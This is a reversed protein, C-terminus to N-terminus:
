GLVYAQQEVSWVVRVSQNGPTGDSAIPTIYYSYYDGGYVIVLFGPSPENEQGMLLLRQNDAVLAIPNLYLLTRGGPSLEQTVFMESAVLVAKISPDSFGVPTNIKVRGTRYSIQETIGDSNIDGSLALRIEQDAPDPTPADIPLSSGAVRWTSQELVVTFDRREQLTAYTLQAPIFLADAPRDLPAGVDFSQLAPQPLGLLQEIPEGNQLRVRLDASLFAGIDGGQVYAHLMDRVLQPAAERPPIPNGAAPTFAFPASALAQNADNMVVLMLDRQTILEGSPLRDPMTLVTDWSGQADAASAVLVEGVPQPMGLRIVVPQGPAFNWGNIAIRTGPGGSKPTFGFTPVSPLAATPTAPAATPRVVPAPAATPQAAPSPVATPQGVVPSPATVTTAPIATASGANPAPAAMCGSVALALLTMGGFRRLVSRYM